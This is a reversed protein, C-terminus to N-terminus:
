GGTKFGRRRAASLVGRPLPIRGWDVPVRVRPARAKRVVPVRVKVPAGPRLLASDMALMRLLPRLARVAQPSAQLLAVMADQGLIAEIQGGFGAARWEARRVLWGFELPWVRPEVRPKVPQGVAPAVDGRVAAVVRPARRVLRGAEFRAALGAMVRGIEGLRRYLLMALAQSLMGAKAWNGLCLRLAAIVASLDQHPPETGALNM